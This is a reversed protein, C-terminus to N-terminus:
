QFVVKQFYVCRLSLNLLKQVVQKVVCGVGGEIARSSIDIDPHVAVIFGILETERDGVGSVPQDALEGLTLADRVGAVRDRRDLAEDTALVRGFAGAVLLLAWLARRSSRRCTELM